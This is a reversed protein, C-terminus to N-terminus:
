EPVCDCVPGYVCGMFVTAVTLQVCLYEVVPMIVVFTIVGGPNYLGVDMHRCVPVYGMITVSDCMPM